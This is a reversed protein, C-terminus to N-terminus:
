ENVVIGQANSSMKNIELNKELFDLLFKEERKRWRTRSLWETVLFFFMFIWFIGIPGIANWFAGNEIARPLLNATMIIIFSSWFALFVPRFLPMKLDGLVLTGNEAERLKGKFYPRSGLRYDGLKWINMHGWRSVKGYVFPGSLHKTPNM